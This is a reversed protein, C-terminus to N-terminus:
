RIPSAGVVRQRDGPASRFIKSVVEDVIWDWPIHGDERVYMVADHLDQDPRRAGTREKSLQGRQVLEYFLFRVNAPIAGDREHKQLLVVVLDRLTGIKSM